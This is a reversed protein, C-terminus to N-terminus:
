WWYNNKGKRKYLTWFISSEERTYDDSTHKVMAIELVEVNTKRDLHSIRFMRRRFIWMEFANIKDESAYLFTSLVYCRVLRKRIELHLKRSTLM